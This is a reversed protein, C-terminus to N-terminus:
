LGHVFLYVALTIIAVAAIILAWGEAHIKFPQVARMRISYDRAINADSLPLDIAHITAESM